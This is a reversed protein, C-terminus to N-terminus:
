DRTERMERLRERAPDYLPDLRFPGTAGGILAESESNIQGYIFTAGYRWWWLGAAMVLALLVSGLIKLDTRM